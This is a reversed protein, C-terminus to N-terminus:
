SEVSNSNQCHQFLITNAAPTLLHSLIILQSGPFIYQVLSKVLPYGMRGSLPYLCSGEECMIIYLQEEPMVNVSEKDKSTAM